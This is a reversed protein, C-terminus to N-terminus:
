QLKLGVGLSIGVRNTGDTNMLHITETINLKTNIEYTMGQTFLISMFTNNQRSLTLNSTENPIYSNTNPNFVLGMGFFPQLKSEKPLLYYQVSVPVTVKNLLNAVRVKRGDLCYEQANYTYNLGLEFKLKSILPIRFFFGSTATHHKITTGKAVDLLDIGRSIGITTNHLHIFKRKGISQANVTTSSSSLLGLAMVSIYFLKKM